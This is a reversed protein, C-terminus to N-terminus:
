NNLAIFTREKGSSGIRAREWQALRAELREHARENDAFIINALFQAGQPNEVPVEGLDKLRKVARLATRQAVWNGEDNYLRVDDAKGDESLSFAVQVIANDPEGRYRVGGTSLARNLDRTTDQQWQEMAASPSVIIDDSDESALSGVPIALLLAAGISRCAIKSIPINTNM